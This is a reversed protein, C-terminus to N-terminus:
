EVGFLRKWRRFGHEGVILLAFIVPLCFWGSIGWSRLAYICAVTPAIIFLAWYTVGALSARLLMTMPRFTTRTKHGLSFLQAM